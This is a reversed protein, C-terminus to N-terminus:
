VVDVERVEVVRRVVLPHLLSRAEAALLTVVGVALEVDVDRLVRRRERRPVVVVLAVEERRAHAALEVLRDVAHVVRSEAQALLSRLSSPRSAVTGGRM